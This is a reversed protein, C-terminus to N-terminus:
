WPLPQNKQQHSLCQHPTHDIEVAIKWGHLYDLAEEGNVAVVVEDDLDLEDLAYLTLEVDRPDDEVLLLKKANM